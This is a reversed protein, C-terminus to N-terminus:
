TEEVRGGSPRAKPVREHVEAVKALTKCRRRLMRKDAEAAPLQAQKHLMHAERNPTFQEALTATVSIFYTEGTSFVM